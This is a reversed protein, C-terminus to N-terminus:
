LPHLPGVPKTTSSKNRQCEQCGPIYKEELDKRMNPWFYSDHINDYCKYFGFHGLNDHASRYIIERLGSEKPVILRDGIYWLSNKNQINLLGLSASALKECWLDTKYALKINKLLSEDIAVKFCDKPAADVLAAVMACMVPKTNPAFM